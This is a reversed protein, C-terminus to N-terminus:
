RILTIEVELDLTKWGRDGTVAPLGLERALALCFADALSVGRRRVGALLAGAEQARRGDADVIDYGLRELAYSAQSSTVGHEILNAFVEAHNVASLAGDAANAGFVAGGPERHLHALAASADFVLRTM